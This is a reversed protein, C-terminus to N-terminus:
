SSQLSLAENSSAADKFPRNMDQKSVQCCSAQGCGQAQRGSQSAPADTTRRAVAVASVMTRDIVANNYFVLGLVLIAGLVADSASTLMHAHPDVIANTKIDLMAAGISVVLAILTQLLCAHQASPSGPMVRTTMAWANSSLQM